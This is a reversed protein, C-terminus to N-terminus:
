RYVARGRPRIVITGDTRIEIESHARSPKLVNQKYIDERAYHKKLDDVDDRLGFVAGELRAFSEHKNAM